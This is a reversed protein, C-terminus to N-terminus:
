TGVGMRGAIGPGIGIAAKFATKEFTFGIVGDVLSPGTTYKNYVTLMPMNVYWADVSYKVNGSGFASPAIDPTVSYSLRWERITTCQPGYVAGLGTDQVRDPIAVRFLTSGVRAGM